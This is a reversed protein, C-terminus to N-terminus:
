AATSDLRVNRSHGDSRGVLTLTQGNALKGVNGKFDGDVYYNNTGIGVAAGETQEGSTILTQWTGTSATFGTSITPGYAYLGLVDHELVVVYHVLSPSGVKSLWISKFTQAATKPKWLVFGSHAPGLSVPGSSPDSM